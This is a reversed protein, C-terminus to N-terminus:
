INKKLSENEETLKKVSLSLDLNENKSCEMISEYLAFLKQSYELKEKLKHIEDKYVEIKSSFLRNDEQLDLIIDKDTLVM